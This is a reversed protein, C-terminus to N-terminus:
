IPHVYSTVDLKGFPINSTGDAVVVTVSKENVQKIECRDGEIEITGGSRLADFRELLKAYVHKLHKLRENQHGLLRILYPVKDAPNSEDNLEKRVRALALETTRVATWATSPLIHHNSLALIEVDFANELLDSVTPDYPASMTAAGRSARFGLHKLLQLFEGAIGGSVVIRDSLPNYAITTSGPWIKGNSGTVGVPSALYISFKNLALSAPMDSWEGQLEVRRKHGDIEQEFTFSFM